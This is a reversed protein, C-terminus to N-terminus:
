LAKEMIVGVVRYGNKKAIKVLGPRATQFGVRQCGSERSMAEALNFGYRTLGASKVARATEVWMRDRNKKLVFVCDSAGDQLRYCDGGAVIGEPTSMGSPDRGPVARLMDLAAASSIKTVQIKEM